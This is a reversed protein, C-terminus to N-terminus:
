SDGHPPLLYLWDKSCCIIQKFVIVMDSALFYVRREPRSSPSVCVALAKSYRSWAAYMLAEKEIPNANGCTM